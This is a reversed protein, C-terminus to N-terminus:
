INFGTEYSQVSGPVVSDGLISQGITRGMNCHRLENAVTAPLSYRGSLGNVVM